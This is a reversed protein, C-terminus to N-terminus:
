GSSSCRYKKATGPLVKHHWKEPYYIVLNGPALVHTKGNYLVECTGSAILLIHYDQRGKKRIVLYDAPTNQIGCSNITM